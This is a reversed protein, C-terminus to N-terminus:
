DCMCKANELEEASRGNFASEWESTFQAVQEATTSPLTLNSM